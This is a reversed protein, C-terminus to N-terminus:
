DDGAAHPAPSLASVLAGALHIRDGAGPSLCACGLAWPGVLAGRVMMGCIMAVLAAGVCALLGVVIAAEVLDYELIALADPMDTRPRTDHLHSCCYRRRGRILAGAAWYVKALEGCCPTESYKPFKM